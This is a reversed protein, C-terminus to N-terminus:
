KYMNPIRSKFLIRPNKAFVKFDEASISNPYPIFHQYVGANRWFLAWAFGKGVIRPELFSTWWIAEPLNDYGVETLAIVKNREKGLKQLIAINSDFMRLVEDKPFYKIKYYLDSGLVDVYKDGPYTSLYEEESAVVDPSFAYLLNHVNFKDTLLDHTLIWFQKYEDATVSKKSWWFWTGSQEHWPRFVVPILEGNSDKLSLMFDAVRKVSKEFAERSAPNHLISTITTDNAWSTHGTVLSNSHWSITVVAGMQHAKQVLTRILDFDVSDLNSSSGLEIHGLDFGYLAPHDGIVEQMDTRDVGPSYKWGVGYAMADQQGIMVGKEGIMKLNKLLKHVSKVAKPDTPKDSAKASFGALALFSLAMIGAIKKKM